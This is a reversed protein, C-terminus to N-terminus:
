GDVLYQLLTEGPLVPRELQTLRGALVQNETIVLVRGEAARRAVLEVIADDRSSHENTLLVRVGDAVIVAERGGLRRDFIVDVEIRGVAGLLAVLAYRRQLTTLEPWGLVAVEDGDVVLAGVRRAVYARLRAIRAEEIGISVDHGEDSFAIAEPILEGEVIGHAGIDLGDEDETARGLQKVVEHVALTTRKYYSSLLRQASPMDVALGDAIMFAAASRQRGLLLLDGITSEDRSEGDLVERLSSAAGQLRDVALELPALDLDAYLYRLDSLLRRFTRVMVDFEDVSSWTSKLLRASLQDM